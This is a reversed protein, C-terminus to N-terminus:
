DRLRIEESLYDAIVVGSAVWSSSADSNRRVSNNTNSSMNNSSGCNDNCTDTMDFSLLSSTFSRQSLGGHNALTSSKTGHSSSNRRNSNDSSNVSGSGSSTYRAPKLCSSITSNLELNRHRPISKRREVPRLHQKPHPQQEEHQIIISHDLDPGGGDRGVVFIGYGGQLRSSPSSYLSSATTTATTFSTTDLDNEECEASAAAADSDINNHQSKPGRSSRCNQRHRQKRHPSCAKPHFNDNDGDNNINHTRLSALRDMIRQAGSSIRRHQHRGQQPPDDQAQQRQEREQQQQLRRQQLQQDSKLLANLSEKLSEMGMSNGQGDGADDVDKKNVSRREMAERSNLRM